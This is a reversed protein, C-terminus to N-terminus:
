ETITNTRTIPHSYLKLFGRRETIETNQEPASIDNQVTVDMSIIEQEKEKKDYMEKINKLHNKKQTLEFEERFEDKLTSDFMEEFGLLGQQLGIVIIQVWRERSAELEGKQADYIKKVERCVKIVLFTIANVNICLNGLIILDGFLVGVRSLSFNYRNFVVLILWCINVALLIGEFIVLQVYNIKKKLPKVAVIFVIIIASIAIYFVSQTISYGHLTTAIIAPLAIRITYIFYFARRLITEQRFGRYLVMFSPWKEGHIISKGNVQDTIIDKFGRIPLYLMGALFAITLLLMFLCLVFSISGVISFDPASFELATFTIVNDVNNALLAIPLNWIFITRLRVCIGLSSSRPYKLRLLIEILLLIGGLVLAIVIASLDPWINATFESPLGTKRFVYPLSRQPLGKQLSQPISYLSMISLINRGRNSSIENMRPPMAISSLETHRLSRVLRLIPPTYPKLCQLYLGNQDVYSDPCSTMCKGTDPYYYEESSCPPYCGLGFDQVMSILPPECSSTCALYNYLYEHIACPPYCYNLSNLVVPQFPTICSSRCTGDWYLSQSTTCPYDCYLSGSENRKRYPLDCTDSCSMNWYLYQTRPCQKNCFNDTGLVQILPPPCATSCTGNWYLFQGTTCKFNCFKKGLVTSQTLPPYCTSSCTGNWYLYQDFLCKQSCYQIGNATSQTLPPNCLTLCSGDWAIFGAAPCPSKCFKRNGKTTQVLPLDCRSLCAGNSYSFETPKCPYDCYNMTAEVRLGLPSACSATTDCTGDWYLAQSTLCPFACFLRGHSTSQILPLNCTNSCTGNWYLSQTQLCPYDCFFNGDTTRPSLPTTCSSTCGGYWLLSSTGTCPYNCFYRDHALVQLLPSDCTNSCTGNWYLFQNALCKFTCTQKGIVSGTTLPLDCSSQCTGDWYLFQLSTCPYSCVQYYISYQIIKLPLNCTALCSSDWYLYNPTECSSTVTPSGALNSYDVSLPSIIQYIPICYKGSFLVFGDACVTCQTPSSGACVLCDPANCAVCNTGDFGASEVCQYCQSTAPGFCSVCISNCLHCNGVADAYEGEPCTCQLSPLTVTTVACMTQPSTTLTSFLFRIDRFGYSENASPEDNKMVFQITLSSASHAFRGFVRVNPLDMAFQVAGAMISAGCINTKGWTISPQAWSSFTTVGVFETNYYDNSDLSDLEFLTYSFFVSQHSLLGSYTRKFYQNLTSTGASGLVNYGGMINVGACNTYKLGSVILGSAAWSTLDQTFGATSSNLDQIAHGLSIILLTFINSFKGTNYSYASISQFSMLLSIVILIAQPATLSTKM